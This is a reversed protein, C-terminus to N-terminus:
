TLSAHLLTCIVVGWVVYRLLSEMGTGTHIFGSVRLRTIPHFFKIGQVTLSDSALHAIYGISLALLYPATANYFYSVGLMAGPIYLSHLFGRHGFIWNLPYSVPKIVRGYKSQPHDIDPLLSGVLVLVGFRWVNGYSFFPALLAAALAGFALHTRAMM